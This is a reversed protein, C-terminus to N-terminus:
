AVGAIMQAVAGLVGVQRTYLNRQIDIAGQWYQDYQDQRLKQSERIADVNAQASSLRVGSAGSVSAQLNQGQLGIKIAEILPSNSSFGRGSLESQSQRISSVTRADNRAYIANVQQQIESPTFVPRVSIYPIVQMSPDITDTLDTTSVGLRTSPSSQRQVQAMQTAPPTPTVGEIIPLFLNIQQQAFALKTNLRSTEADQSYEIGALQQDADYETGTLQTQAVVQRAGADIGAVQVQAGAETSAVSERAGADVGAVDIDANARITAVQIQNSTDILAVQVSADAETQAVQERAAADINAIQVNYPGELNATLIRANADLQAAQVQAEANTRAVAQDATSRTTAVDRSADAETQAVQTDAQARIMESDHTSAAQVQAIREQSADQSETTLIAAQFRQDADYKTGELQTTAVNQDGQVRMQMSDTQAVSTIRDDSVQYGTFCCGSVTEGAM